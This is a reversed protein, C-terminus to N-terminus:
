RGKPKDTFTEIPKTTPRPPRGAKIDAIKAKMEETLEARLTM